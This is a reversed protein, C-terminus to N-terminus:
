KGLGSCTGLHRRQDLRFNMANVIDNVDPTLDQESQTKLEALCWLPSMNYGKALLEARSLNTAIKFIYKLLSLSFSIFIRHWAVRTHVEWRYLFILDICWFIARLRRLLLNQNGESDVCVYGIGGVLVLFHSGCGRFCEFRLILDINHIFVWSICLAKHNIIYKWTRTMFLGYIDM